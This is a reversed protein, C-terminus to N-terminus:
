EVNFSMLFDTGEGLQMIFNKTITQAGANNKDKISVNYIYLGGSTQYNNYTLENNAYFKEKVYKEFDAQTPFNNQKFTNDLKSYAYRYDGDNIASFVRGINLVVKEAENAENYKETFEPLDVTYTDLIVNYNRPSTENIIWYKGDLTKCVYQVYNEQQVTQYENIQALQISQKNQNIYEKFNDLSGYKKNRYEEDLLNYAKEQNSLMNTKFEQFYKSAVQGDTIEYFVFTNRSNKEITQTNNEITIEDISNYQSSNLPYICFVQAVRDIKVIYYNYNEENTNLDTERVYACYGEIETNNDVLKNIKLAETKIENTASGMISYVNSENINNQAIYEKDLLDLIAKAKEEETQIQYVNAITPMNRDDYQKEVDLHYYSIYKSVCNEITYFTMNNTVPAIKKYREGEVAHGISNTDAVESNLEIKSLVIVTIVLVIVLIISLIIILKKINSM